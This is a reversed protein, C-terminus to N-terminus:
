GDHEDGVADGLRHEEASAHDHEGGPRSAHRVIETNFQRMRTREIHLRLLFEAFVSPPNVAQQAHILLARSRACRSPLLMACCRRPMMMFPTVPRMPIFWCRIRDITAIRACPPTLSRFPSRTIGSGMRTPRLAAVSSGKACAFPIVR